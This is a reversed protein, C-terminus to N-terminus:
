TLKMIIDALIYGLCFVVIDTVIRLQKKIGKLEKRLVETESIIYKDPIKQKITPEATYKM